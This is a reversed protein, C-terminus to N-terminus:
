AMGGLGLGLHRKALDAGIAQLATPLPELRPDWVPALAELASQMAPQCEAVVRTAFAAADRKGDLLLPWLRDGLAQHWRGDEGLSFLLRSLLADGAAEALRAGEQVFLADFWPKVVLTLAALAEGLDYTVLLEEIVRRLPQWEPASQWREKGRAFEPNRATLEKVRYALRQIRRIEDGAQFAFAVVLESTPALQGVYATVMQLGHCPYLLVPLWLGLRELWEEDLKGDDNRESSSRL